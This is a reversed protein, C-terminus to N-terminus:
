ITSHQKCFVIWENEENAMDEDIIVEEEEKKEEMDMTDFEVPLAELTRLNVMVAIGSSAFSPLTILTVEKEGIRRREVEFRDQNGVVYM